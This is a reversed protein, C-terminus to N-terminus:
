EPLAVRVTDGEPAGVVWPGKENVGEGVGGEGTTNLPPLPQSPVVTKKEAM